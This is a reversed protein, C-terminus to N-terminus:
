RWRGPCRSRCGASSRTGNAALLCRSRGLAHATTPGVGGGVSGGKGIARLRPRRPLSCAARRGVLQGIPARRTAADGPGGGPADRRPAVRARRSPEGRPLGGLAFGFRIRSNLRSTAWLSLASVSAVAISARSLVPPARRPRPSRRGLDLIGGAPSGPGEVHPQGLLRAHSPRAAGGTLWRFASAVSQWPMPRLRVVRSVFPAATFRSRARPM